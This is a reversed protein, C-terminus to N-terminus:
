ARWLDSLSVRRGQSITGTARLAKVKQIVADADRSIASLEDSDRGTMLLATIHKHILYEGADQTHNPLTEPDIDIRYLECRQYAHTMYDLKPRGDKRQADDLLPIAIHGYGKIRLAGGKVLATVPTDKNIRPM